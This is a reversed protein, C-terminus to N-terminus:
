DQERSVHLCLCCWHISAVAYLALIVTSLYSSDGEIRRGLFGLEWVMFCAAAIVGLLVTARLLLTGIVL